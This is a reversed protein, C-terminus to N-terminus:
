PRARCPAAPGCRTTTFFTPARPLRRALSKRHRLREDDNFMEPFEASLLDVLEKRTLKPAAMETM